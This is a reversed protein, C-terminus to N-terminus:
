NMDFFFERPLKPMEGPGYHKGDVPFDFGELEDTDKGLIRGSREYEEYIAALGYRQVPCVKMCVAGGGAQAVVPLCRGTNIKAKEVGRHYARRRPIANGPCRRVCVQCEECIKNIGYDRPSDLELPADTSITILRCRSGAFPTLLQGNHGLQGIGAQVAYHIMVGTGHPTTPVARYGRDELFNALNAGMKLLESYSGFVAKEADAHPAIQTTDFNQELVCVIVRDGVEKGHFPEFEYKRDYLAIGMASLGIEEARAKLLKTLMGADAQEPREAADMARARTGAQEIAAIGRMFRPTTPILAHAMGEYQKKTAGPYIDPYDRLPGQEYAAEEAEPDRRIGPVGRLGQPVQEAFEGWAGVPASYRRWRLFLMPPIFRMRKRLKWNAAVWRMLKDIQQHM